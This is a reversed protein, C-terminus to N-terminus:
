NLDQLGAYVNQYRLAAIELGLIERAADRLRLGGMKAIEDLKDVAAWLDADSRPDILCGANLSRVHEAVDGVGANCIVPIGAAFCEALKTPSAAIRAYSPLIFSVLIDMAAIFHPVQERGAPHVHVRRHLEVPLHQKMLKNLAALDQTVILLHTDHRHAATFEFLRFIRDLMYMHGISGLYGLVRAGIPIGLDNRAQTRRCKDALPFHGFDACCPIVTVSKSAVAGLRRIEPVVAETLVVIRDANEILKREIRKFHHYQLRHLFNKPNWGGKDVREDVWLGRFDFIFRTGFIYKLFFAIQAPLHGRAHVLRVNRSTVLHIGWFYMRVIDWIKGVSGMNSTFSLPTWYIGRNELKLRLAKHGIAFRDKKEFSIIHVPRSHMTICFIYPLIQSAGLPDLLGDYTIFILGSKM